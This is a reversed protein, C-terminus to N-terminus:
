RKNSFKKLIMKRSRENEVVILQTVRNLTEDMKILTEDMKNLTEDMKNLTEGMKLFQRDMRMFGKELKESMLSFGKEMNELVRGNQKLVKAFMVSLLSGLIAFFSNFILNVIEM